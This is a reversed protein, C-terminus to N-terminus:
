PMRCGAGGDGRHGLEWLRAYKVFVHVASLFALLLGHMGDRWGQKLVYRKWFTAPPRLLLHHLRCRRGAAHLAQAGLDAYTSMKALYHPLDPDTYHLLEGALRATSGDVELREHVADMTMRCADRRALRLVWDPYWGGHRMWRGLFLGRRCLEYGATPADGGQVVARIARALETDVVEDADLLLVWEGRALELAAAKTPGFGRWELEEVRAGGARALERTGDTSGTDVVLLEDAFQVAALCPGIRREEDRAVIVVSLDPVPEADASDISRPSSTTRGDGNM